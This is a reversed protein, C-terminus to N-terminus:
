RDGITALMSIFRPSQQPYSSCVVWGRHDIRNQKGMFSKIMSRNNRVPFLQAGATENRDLGFAKHVNRRLIPSDVYDLLYLSKVINDFELLAKKTRNQRRYTSLKSVIVSQTTTKLALSLM